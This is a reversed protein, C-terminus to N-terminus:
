GDNGKLRPTALRAQQQARRLPLPGDGRWGKADLASLEPSSRQGGHHVPV